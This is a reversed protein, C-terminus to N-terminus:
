FITTRLSRTKGNVSMRVVYVGTRVTGGFRDKGNWTVTHFGANTMGSFITGVKAGTLTYFAFDVRSTETLTFVFNIAGPQASGDVKFSVSSVGEEPVGAERSSTLSLCPYQKQAALFDSDMGATWTADGFAKKFAPRLDAGAACSEFHVYQGWSLDGGKWNKGLNEFFKALFGSGGYQTYLPYFWDRFWHAGTVPKDLTQTICNNYWRTAEANMGLGKYVDYIFIECWKSDGWLGFAPSNKLGYPTSEVIHGVEHTPIDYGPNTWPGPGNDAVNRNDHSANYYYSPHGGSYKNTHLIFYLRNEPSLPGYVQKLYRSVDGFYKFPWTITPPTDGDYYVAVDSDYFVRTLLQNHEFWHEQWTAPPTTQSPSAVVLVGIVLLVVRLIDGAHKM